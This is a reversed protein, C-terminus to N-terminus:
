DDTVGQMGHVPAACSAQQLESIAYAAVFQRQCLVHQCADETHTAGGDRQTGSLEMAHAYDVVMLSAHDDAIWGSQLGSSTLAIAHDLVMEGSQEGSVRFPAGEANAWASMERTGAKRGTECRQLLQGDVSM